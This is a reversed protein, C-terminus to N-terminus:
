ASAANELFSASTGSYSKIPPNTTSKDPVLRRELEEVKGRFDHDQRMLREVQNVAHIVTAHNRDFLRAIHPYSKRSHERAFFMAVQRPRAVPRKLERADLSERPIGFFSAVQDKIEAVSVSGRGSVVRNRPPALGLRHRRARVSPASRGSLLRAIEEARIKAHACERLFADEEQSWLSM